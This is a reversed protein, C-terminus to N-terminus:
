DPLTPVAEDHGRPFQMSPPMSPPMSPTPVFLTGVRRAALHVRLMELQNETPGVRRFAGVYDASTFSEIQEMVDAAM